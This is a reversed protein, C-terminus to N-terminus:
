RENNQTSQAATDYAALMAPDGMKLRELIEGLQGVYDRFSLNAADMVRTMEALLWFLAGISIRIDQDSLILDARCKPHTIRNRIRIAEKLHTWDQGSFDIEANSALKEAIRATLRITAMLPLYRAQEAIRGQDNVQYSIESLAAEETPELESMARAAETVHERFIWSIGDIAAFGTRILDRKASQTQASDHREMADMVDFLLIRIFSERAIEDESSDASV